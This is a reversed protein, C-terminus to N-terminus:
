HETAMAPGPLGGPPAPAGLIVHLAEPERRMRLDLYVATAVAVGVPLLLVEIAMGGLARVAAFAAVSGSIRTGLAIGLTCGGVAFAGGLTAALTALRRGRALAWSRRLAAAPGAGEIALVPLAVALGAAVYLGPLLLAVTGAAILFGAMLSAWLLAPLRRLALWLMGRDDASRAVVRQRLISLVVASGLLYFVASIVARAVAITRLPGASGYPM